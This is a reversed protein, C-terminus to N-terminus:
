FTRFVPKELMKLNTMLLPNILLQNTEWKLKMLFSFCILYNSYKNFKIYYIAEVNILVLSFFVM